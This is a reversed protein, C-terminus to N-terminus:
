DNSAIQLENNVIKCDFKALYTIKASDPKNIHNKGAM